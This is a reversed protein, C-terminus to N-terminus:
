RYTQTARQQGIFDTAFRILSDAGSDSAPVPIFGGPPRLPPKNGYRFEMVVALVDRLKNDINSYVKDRRSYHPCRLIGAQDRQRSGDALRFCQSDRHNEKM